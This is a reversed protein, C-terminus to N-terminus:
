LFIRRFLNIVLVAKMKIIKTLMRSEGLVVIRKMKGMYIVIEFYFQVSITEELKRKEVKKEKEKRPNGGLFM